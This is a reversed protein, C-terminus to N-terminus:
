IYMYTESASNDADCITEDFYFSLSVVQVLWVQCRARM